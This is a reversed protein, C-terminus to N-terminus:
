RWAGAAKGRPLSGTDMTSSAPQTWPGTQVLAFFRAGWRPEIGPVNLGYCIAISVASNQGVQLYYVNQIHKIILPKLDNM